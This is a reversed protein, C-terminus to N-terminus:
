VAATDDDHIYRQGRMLSAIAAIFALAARAARRQQYSIGAGKEGSNGSHTGPWPSGM